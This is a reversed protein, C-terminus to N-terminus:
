AQDMHDKKAHHKDDKYHEEDRHDCGSTVAPHARDLTGSNLQPSSPSRLSPRSPEKPPPPKEFHIM